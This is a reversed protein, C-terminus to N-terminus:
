MILPLAAELAIRPWRRLSASRLVRRGRVTNPVSIDMDDSSLSVPSSSIGVLSSRFSM